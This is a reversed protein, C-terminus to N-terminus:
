LLRFTMKISNIIKTDPKRFQESLRDIIVNGLDEDNNGYGTKTKKPNVLKKLYNM